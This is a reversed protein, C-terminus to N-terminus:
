ELRRVIGNDADVELMDGDKLASTAIQTGIICPIKLERSVIAAHCSIGGEDTVIAVAKKMITLYEPRTNPAVLICGREFKNFDQEGMIVKVNGRVMGGSATTGRIIDHKKDFNKRLESYIKEADCGTLYQFQSGIAYYIWTKKRENIKKPLSSPGDELDAAIAYRIEDFTVDWLESIRRYLLDYYHNHLKTYKKRMERLLVM